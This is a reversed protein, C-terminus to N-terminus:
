IGGKQSLVRQHHCAQQLQNPKFKVQVVLWSNACLCLVVGVVAKHGITNRCFLAVEIHQHVIMM